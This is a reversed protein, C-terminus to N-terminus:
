MTLHLRHQHTPLHFTMPNCFNNNATRMKKSHWLIEHAMLHTQILSSRRPDIFLCLSALLSFTTLCRPLSIGHLVRSLFFAECAAGRSPECSKEWLGCKEKQAFFDRALVGVWHHHRHKNQFLGWDSSCGEELWKGIKQTTDSEHSCWMLMHTCFGRQKLKRVWLEHFQFSGREYNVWLM